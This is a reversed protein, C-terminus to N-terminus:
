WIYILIVRYRFIDVGTSFLLYKEFGSDHVSKKEDTESEVPYTNCFQPTQLLLTQKKVKQM